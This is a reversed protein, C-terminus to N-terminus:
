KLLKIVEEAGRDGSELAGEIYGKWHRATETGVFHINGFSAQLSGGLRSLIGPPTVPCPCGKSFQEQAWDQELISLPIKAKESLQPGYISAVQELIQTHREPRSFTSWKRGPEGVVFCTLSYHNYAPSSSDRTLSIPGKFSHTLGCLGHDKWWPKEYILIVKTYYGLHTSSSFDVKESPLPPEFVVEKYLPTPLSFILKKCRYQVGSHTIVVVKEFDQTVKSVLSNLIVSGPQLMSELGKALSGMGSFYDINSLLGSQPSHEKEGQRARLFQGGHKRDSRMQKLGGGLRCYELFYLASMESPECGLMARTWLTVNELAATGLGQTKVFDEMSMSDYKVANQDDVSHCINEVDDRITGV